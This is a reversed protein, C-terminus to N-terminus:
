KRCEGHMAKADTLRLEDRCLFYDEIRQLLQKIRRQMKKRAFYKIYSAYPIFEHNEFRGKLDIAKPEYAGDGNVRMLINKLNIDFLFIDRYLLSDCFVKTVKILYEVDCSEQYLIIEFISKSVSGDHDLICDCVLGVGMNTSVLGYCHSIFDLDIQNRMLDYYGKIERANALEGEKKNQFPVKIILQSNGPHHYCVRTTGRSIMMSDKLHMM